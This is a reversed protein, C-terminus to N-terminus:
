YTDWFRELLCYYHVDKRDDVFSLKESPESKFGNKRLFELRTEDDKLTGMWVKKADLRYFAYGLM